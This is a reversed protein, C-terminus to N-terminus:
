MKKLIYLQSEPINCSWGLIVCCVLSLAQIRPWISRWIDCGKYSHELTTGDLLYLSLWM